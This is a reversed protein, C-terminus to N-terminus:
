IQFAVPVLINYLDYVFPTLLRWGFFIFVLLLPWAYKRLSEKLNNLSDPLLAFLIHHGDLPPIPILNFVALIINTLITVQLISGVLASPDGIVNLLLAAIGALVINTVPGMVAILAGGWRSNKLNYPNYPVPKAWGFVFPTGLLILFGPVLVSGVWDLHALPNLTLRGELRPTPDGLKDATWGHALEHLIVSIILIIIFIIASYYM